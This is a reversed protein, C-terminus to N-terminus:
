FFGDMLFAISGTIVAAVIGTMVKFLEGAMHTANGTMM